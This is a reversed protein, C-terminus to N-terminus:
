FIIKIDRDAPLVRVLVLKCDIIQYYLNYRGVPFSKLGQALEPRDRGLDPFEALTSAKEQLKDLYRDANVPQDEAIYLWIALLDEEAKPSIKLELM